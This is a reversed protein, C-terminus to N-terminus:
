YALLEDWPMARVMIGRSFQIGAQNVRLWQSTRAFFYLGIAMIGFCVADLVNQLYHMGAPIMDQSAVLYRLGYPAPFAILLALARWHLQIRFVQDGMPLVNKPPEMTRPKTVM